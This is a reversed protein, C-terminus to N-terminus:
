SVVCKGDKSGQQSKDAGVGRSPTPQKIELERGLTGSSGAPAAPILGLRELCDKVDRLTKAVDPHNEGFAARYIKLAEDYMKLAETYNGQNYYCTGINSLSM